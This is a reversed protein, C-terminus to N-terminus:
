NVGKEKLITLIESLIDNQEDFRRGLETLLQKAQKDNAASVDNHASQERNEQLNEYGILFSLVGILDLVDFQRQEGM